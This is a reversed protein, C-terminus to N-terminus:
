HESLWRELQLLSPELPLEVVPKLSEFLGLGLDVVAPPELQGDVLGLDVM